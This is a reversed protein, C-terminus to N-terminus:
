REVPVRIRTPAELPEDDLLTDETAGTGKVQGNEVTLTSSFRDPVAVPQPLIALRYGKALDVGGALEIEITITAGAPINFQPTDWANLGRETGPGMTLPKGDITAKTVVNRTFLSLTTVNTGDPAGRTNGGVSEPLIAFPIANTMEVTLVAKLEGTKADVTPEYTIKRELYADIKNNGANQQVLSFGDSGPPIVLSGDAGLREFLSQEREEPSWLRLHGGRAAPSLVDALQRPAPLSANILKEFTAKTAASLIEGRTARDGLELYQSRTLIEVANDSSLPEPLGDVTVPGTLELLSALGAPDVAIVGDVESGGAQPYLEAIVQADSPFHPSYTVDQLFTGPDFRGYRLLYDAPGSITRSGQNPGELLDDIRGSRTLTAQGDDLVLEAYSGIFGGAGRLEAPTLFVILYRRPGSAGFLDPTTELLDAALATDTRAQDIDAAFQDVRDALPPLLSSDQLGDLESRAEGLIRDARRAPDALAAVQELDLRGEYQLRDYDATAVLDDGADSIRLGQDVTTRVANVQQALGPVLQAPTTLHSNVQSSASEFSASATALDARAAEADGDRAGNLADRAAASGTRVDSFAMAMAAAAGIGALVILVSVGILIDRAVRRKRRRLHPYGNGVVFLLAVAAAVVGWPAASEPYWFVANVMLGLGLAGWTRSRRKPVTSAAVVVLAALALLQSVGRTPVVVVAGAVLWSWRRGHAGVYSVFAAILAREIADVAPIGTLSAPAFLAAAAALASIWEPRIANAGRTNRSRRESM